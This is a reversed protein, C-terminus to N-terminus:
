RRRDLMWSTRAEDLTQKRTQLIVRQRIFTAETYAADDDVHISM